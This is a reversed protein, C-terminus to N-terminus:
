AVSARRLAVSARRLALPDLSLMAYRDKRGKGQEIRIVQRQSTSTGHGQALGGGLGRARCWLGLVAGSQGEAWPGCDLRRAVAEPSLVVPLRQPQRVTTM